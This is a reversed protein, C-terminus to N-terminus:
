EESRCVKLAIQQTRTIVAVFLRPQNPIAHDSALWAQDSAAGIYAIDLARDSGCGRQADDHGNTASPVAKGTEAGAFAAQDDVKGSHSLDGDIGRGAARTKSAATQQARDIIRCM